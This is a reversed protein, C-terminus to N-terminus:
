GGGAPSLPISLYGISKGQAKYRRDASPRAGCQRQHCRPLRQQRLLLHRAQHVGDRHRASGRPGHPQLWAFSLSPSRQVGSPLRGGFVIPDTSLTSAHWTKVHETKAPRARPRIM